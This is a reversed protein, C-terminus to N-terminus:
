FRKKRRLDEVEDGPQAVGTGHNVRYEVGDEVLHEALGEPPDQETAVASPRAPDWGVSLTQLVPARAMSWRGHGKGESIHGLGTRRAPPLDQLSSRHHELSKIMSLHSM